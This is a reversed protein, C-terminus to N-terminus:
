FSFSFFLFLFFIHVAKFFFFFLSTVDTQLQPEIFMVFNVGSLNFLCFLISAVISWNGGGGGGGGGWWVCVCLNFFIYIYFILFSESLAQGAIDAIVVDDPEVRTGGGVCVCECVFWHLGIFWLWLFFHLFPSFLPYIIKFLFLFFFFFFFFFLLHPPPPSNM